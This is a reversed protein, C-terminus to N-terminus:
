GDTHWRSIPLNYPECPASVYPTVLIIVALYLCAAAALLLLFGWLPSAGILLMLVWRTFDGIM